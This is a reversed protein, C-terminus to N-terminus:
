QGRQMLAETPSTISAAGRSLTDMYNRLGMDNYKRQASMVSASDAEFQEMTLAKQKADRRDRNAIDLLLERTPPFLESFTTMLTNMTKLDLGGSAMAAQIESQLKREKQEFEADFQAQGETFEAIRQQLTRDFQSEDQDLKERELQLTEINKITDAIQGKIRADRAMLGSGGGTLTAGLNTGGSAGAALLFEILAGLKNTEEAELKDLQQQFKSEQTTRAPATSAAPADEPLASAIGTRPIGRTPAQGGINPPLPPLQTTPQGAPLGGEASIDGEGGGFTPMSVGDPFYEPAKLGAAALLATIHPNKRALSMLGAAGTRARLLPAAAYTLALDGVAGPVNREVDQTTSSAVGAKALWEDLEQGVVPVGRVNERMDKRSQPDALFGPITKAVGVAGSGLELARDGMSRWSDKDSLFGLISPEASEPKPESPTNPSMPNYIADSVTLRQGSSDTLMLEQPISGTRRMERLDDVTYVEGTPATFTPIFADEEVDGGPAYGVIGGRAMGVMNPAPQSAIGGMAQQLQQAQMAQGQQQIGPSLSAAVEQKTMDMVQGALQDKVTAAPAQMQMQLDRQAAEKDKKLKQLALLDLLDQSMAYRQQLGQPNGAFLSARDNVFSDIGAM